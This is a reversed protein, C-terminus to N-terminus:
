GTYRTPPGHWHGGVTHRAACVLQDAPRFPRRRGARALVEAVRPGTKYMVVVM